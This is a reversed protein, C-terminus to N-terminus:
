DKEAKCGIPREKTTSTEVLMPDFCSDTSGPTTLNSSSSDGGNPKITVRLKKSKNTSENKTMLQNWKPTTKLIKWCTDFKFQTEQVNAYVRKAEMIPQFPVDPGEIELLSYNPNEMTVVVPTGKRTEKAWWDSFDLGPAM